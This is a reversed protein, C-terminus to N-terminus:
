LNWPGKGYPYLEKAPTGRRVGQRTWAGGPVEGSTNWSKDSIISKKTGDAFDLQLDALFGAAGGMNSAYVAIVNQGKKLYPLLDTEQYQMWYSGCQVARGNVYLMYSDDAASILRASTPLRPLDITRSACLLDSATNGWIWFAKTKLATTMNTVKRFYEPLRKEMKSDPAIYGVSPLRDNTSYIRTSLPPINIKGQSVPISKGYELQYLQGNSIKLDVYGPKDSRNHVVIYCDAKWSYLATMVGSSAPFDKRGEGGWLKAQHIRSMLCLEEYMVKEFAPDYNRHAYYGLNVAGHLLADFSMFRFEDRTPYPLKKREAPTQKANGWSFGQLVMEVTGHNKMTEYCLKTYEGVCRMGKEPLGSHKPSGVPYVDIGFIDCYQAYPKWNEPMGRPAEVLFVPHYPDLEKLSNYTYKMMREPFGNWAPEDYPYYGILAPHDKIAKLKKLEDQWYKRFKAEDKLRIWTGICDIRCVGKIGKKQCEDLFAKVGDMYLPFMVSLGTRKLYYDAVDHMGFPWTVAPFRGSGLRIFFFNNGNVYMNRDAGIVVENKGPALKRIIVKETVREGNRFKGSFTLPYRGVALKDASFAFEAAKGTNKLIRSEGNFSVSCAPIETPFTVTGRVEYEPRSAYFNQRFYPSKLIVNFIKEPEVEVEKIDFDDFQVKGDSLSSLVIELEGAKGAPVRIIEKREQWHKQFCDQVQSGWVRGTSKLTMVAKYESFGNTSKRNEMGRVNYSVSYNKGGELKLLLRARAGIGNLCLVGPSKRGGTKDISANKLLNWPNKKQSDFGGDAIKVSDEVPAIAPNRVFCVGPVKLLFVLYPSSKFKKDPVTFVYSVRQWTGTTKFVKTPINGWKGDAFIWEFYNRLEAKGDGKYEFSIRYSGGAAFSIERQILFVGGDGPAISLKATGDAFRCAINGKKIKNSIVRWGSAITGTKNAKFEPNRLLEPVSEKISVNRLFVEGASRLGIALYPRSHYKKGAPPMTFKFSYKDWDKTIKIYNTGSNGWKKDAFIWEFYCNLQSATGKAEFRITYNKGPVMPPNKHLLTVGKEGPALSLKAMNDAFVCPTNAPDVKNKVAYWGMAQTKQMNSPVFEQNVILEQAFLGTLLTVSFFLFKKM